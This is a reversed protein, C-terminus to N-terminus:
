KLFTPGIKCPIVEVKEWVNNLMYPEKKLWEDLDKRSPYELIMVSGKMNGEDDLLAVGMHYNGAARMEDDMKVHEDRVNLRRQLGGDKHDHALLIFQM